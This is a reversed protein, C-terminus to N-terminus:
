VQDQQAIKKAEDKSLFAYTSIIHIDANWVNFKNEYADNDTIDEKLPSQLFRYMQFRDQNFDPKVYPFEYSNEEYDHVDRVRFLDHIPRITISIELENYQLAVLPFACKSDLTFWSNLPIYINRGRISPEVGTSTTNNDVFFANPYTNIRGYAMGPNNLEVTNGSMKNFLEKKDQTFDRDVMSSIYNGGYRALVFSGCKIEIEQIMQTGLDDIWRFEYPAWKNGTKESPSYIPSWINPLTMVLYSDMLLEAYRPIKFTFTSSETPRLDRIGSYDIRFKQLGFNTYKSYAVQFFTKTPEGTLFINANGIAILNLLGGAM